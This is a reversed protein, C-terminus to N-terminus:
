VVGLHLDAVAEVQAGGPSDRVAGDSLTRYHAAEDVSSGALGTGEVGTTTTTAM